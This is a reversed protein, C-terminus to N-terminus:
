EDGKFGLRTYALSFGLRIANRETPIGPECEIVAVRCGESVGQQLRRAILAKQIGQRRHPEGVVAGWLSAVRVPERDQAPALEIIEMGCTGVLIGDIFARFGRSRPHTQSREAAEYEGQQPEVGPKAFGQVRHRVLERVGAEDADDLLEIRLGQVGVSEVPSELYRAYVREAQELKFGAEAITAFASEGSLDTLDISPRAGRERLFSSIRDMGRGTIDADLGCGISQCLWDVGNKFAVVGGGEALPISEHEDSLEAIVLQQRRENLRMITKSDPLPTM